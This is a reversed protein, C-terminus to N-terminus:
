QRSSPSAKKLAEDHLQRRAEIWDHNTDGPVGNQMRWEAIFYARTRIQEDSIEITGPDSSPSLATPKPKRGTATKRAAPRSKAGAKTQAAAKPAAKKAAAAKAPKVVSSGNSSERGHAPPTIEHETAEKSKKLSKAM